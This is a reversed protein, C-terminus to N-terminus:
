LKWLAAQFGGLTLGFRRVRGILLARGPSVAHFRVIQSPGRLKPGPHALRDFHLEFDTGVQRGRLRAAELADHGIIAGQADSHIAWRRHHVSGDVYAYTEDLHLARHEESWIGEMEISFRRTVAGVATRVVGFGELRGQLFTEPTM